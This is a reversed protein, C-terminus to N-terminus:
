GAGGPVQQNSAQVPCEPHVLFPRERAEYSGGDCRCRREDSVQKDAAEWDTTVVTRREIIPSWEAREAAIGRVLSESGVRTSDKEYPPICVVRWQVEEAM